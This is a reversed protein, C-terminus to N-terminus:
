APQAAPSTPPKQTACSSRGDVTLILSKAWNHVYDRLYEEMFHSISVTAGTNLAQVKHFTVGQLSATGVALGRRSGLGSAGEAASESRVARGFAGVEALRGPNASCKPTAQLLNLKSAQRM